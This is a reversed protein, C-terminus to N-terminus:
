PTLYKLYKDNEKNKEILFVARFIGSEKLKQTLLSPDYDDNDDLVHFLYDYSKLKKFLYSNGSKNSILNFITDPAGTHDSFKSFSALHGKEDEVELPPHNKLSLSLKNNLLLSLKYDPESSVIGFLIYNDNSPFHLPVKTKKQNRKM